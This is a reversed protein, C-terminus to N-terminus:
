NLCLIFNTFCCECRSFVDKLYAHSTEKKKNLIYKYLGGRRTDCVFAKCNAYQLMPYTASVYWVRSPAGNCSKGRRSTEDRSPKSFCTDMLLATSM